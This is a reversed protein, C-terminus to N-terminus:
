LTKIKLNQLFTTILPKNKTDRKKIRQLLKIDAM